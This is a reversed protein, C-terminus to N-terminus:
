VLFGILYVKAKIKEAKTKRWRGHAQDGHDQGDFGDMHDQPWRMM